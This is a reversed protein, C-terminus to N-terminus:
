STCVLAWPPSVVVVTSPRGPPPVLVIVLVGSPRVVVVNCSGAAPPPEVLVVTVVVSLSPFVVVTVVVVSWLPLVVTVTVVPLYSHYFGSRSHAELPRLNYYGRQGIWACLAATISSCAPRPGVPDRGEEIDALDEVPLFLRGSGRRDLPRHCVHYRSV